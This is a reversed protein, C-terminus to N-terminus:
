SESSLEKLWAVTEAKTERYQAIGVIVADMEILEFNQQGILVELEEEGICIIVESM